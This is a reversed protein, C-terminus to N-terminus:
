RPCVIRTPRSRAFAPVVIPASYRVAIDVTVERGCLECATGTPVFTGDVATLTVPTSSIEPGEVDFTALVVDGDRLLGTTARARTLVDIGSRVSMALRLAREEPLSCDIAVEAWLTSLGLAGMPVTPEPGGDAVDLESRAGCATFLMSGLLLSSVTV